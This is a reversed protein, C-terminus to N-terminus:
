SEGQTIRLPRSAHAEMRAAVPRKTAALSVGTAQALQFGRWHWRGVQKLGPMQMAQDPAGAGRGSRQSM